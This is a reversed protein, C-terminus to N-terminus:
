ALRYVEIEERRGRLRHPGLSTMGTLSGPTAVTAESVLVVVDDAETLYRKALEQLREAINVTDGIVTYNMRGPAGINGVLVPGTHLGVKTRVIALGQRQRDRNDAAIAAAIARVARCARVAHDPQRGPAGWFAMVADGIFKDITGGEAEVCEGILEFHRNLLAVTEQSSLREALPTFGAIDTFMVTIVREELMAAEDGQAMLRLVLSRPVYTEFWRLASLLSNYAAAAEDIEKLSSPELASANSLDLSRIAATAQALRKIPRGIARGALWAGAVAVVFIGLGIWAARALRRVEGRLEELRFYRGILWSRDSYGSLERFVFVYPTNGVTVVHGRSEGTLVEAAGLKREPSWFQALVPDGLDGLSPMPRDFGLEPPNRALVPHAIVYDQDYIIFTNSDEGEPSAALFNSLEAVTVTSFLVGIFRDEQWLPTRLNVLPQRFRHSWAPEGWISRGAARVEELAEAVGPTDRMDFSRVKGGDDQREVRFQQHRVDIFALAEVQPTAALATTLLAGFSTTHSPDLEGNAILRALFDAQERVPNLHLQTREIVLSVIRETRDRVLEITSQRGSELAVVLAAAGALAIISFGAALAWGISLWRRRPVIPTEVREVEAM